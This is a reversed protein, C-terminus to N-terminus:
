KLREKGLVKCELCGDQLLIKLEDELEVQSTKYIYSGGKTKCLAYGRQIIALPSLADLQKAYKQLEKQYQAIQNSIIRELRSNSYDLFQKYQDLNVLPNRMVRSKTLYGIKLKNTEIISELKHYLKMAQKHLIEQLEQRNPIVLEAAASPTPARLDAVLDAITVDTEHGVASVVPIKSAYIARAVEETNFAWLEELSGGGRAVIIVDLGGLQNLCELANVIEGPAEVGQVSTPAIILAVAPNRRKAITIIDHLVAGATSTVIGIKSPLIPITRKHNTEFLGEAELKKKLQEFALHLDGLGMTHVEQVYLQCQGDKTYISIYGQAMVEMGNELKFLLRQAASSFMVCKLAAANDKLSFYLHGSVAQKFNTIEGKVWVNSLLQDTELLNKLYSNVQSVTLCRATSFM